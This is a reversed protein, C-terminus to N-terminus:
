YSPPLEPPTILKEGKGEYENQICLLPISIYDIYNTDHEANNKREEILIANRERKAFLRCGPGDPKPPKKSNIKQSFAKLPLQDDPTKEQTLSQLEFDDLELMDNAAATLNFLCCLLVALHAAAKSYSHRSPILNKMM